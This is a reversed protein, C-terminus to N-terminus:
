MIRGESDCYCNALNKPANEKESFDLVSNLDKSEMDEALVYVRRGIEQLALARAVNFDENPPGVFVGNKDIVIYMM